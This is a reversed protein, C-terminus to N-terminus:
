LAFLPGLNGKRAAFVFDKSSKSVMIGGAAARLGKM